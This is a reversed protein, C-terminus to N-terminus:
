HITLLISFAYNDGYGIDGTMGRETFADLVKRYLLYERGEM